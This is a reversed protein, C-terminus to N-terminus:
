KLNRWSGANYAEMGNQKMLHAAMGSRRGTACCVLIPKKKKQLSKMQQHIQDLPINVSGPVKAQNFEMKSRVDVVIAGRNRFDKIKEQRKKGFGLFSFIGM